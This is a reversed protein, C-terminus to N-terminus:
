RRPGPPRATCAAPPHATGGTSGCGAAQNLVVTSACGGAPTCGCVCCRAGGQQRPLGAPGVPAGWSGAGARQLARGAGLVGLAAAPQGGVEGGKHRGHIAVRNLDADARLVRGVVVAGAGTRAHTRPLTRAHTRPSCYERRSPLCAARAPSPPEAPARRLARQLGAEWGGARRGEARSRGEVSCADQPQHGPGGLGLDPHVGPHLRAHLHRTLRCAPARSRREARAERPMTSRQQGSALPVAMCTCEQEGAAWGAGVTCGEVVRQDGLEHHVSGLAAGGGNVLHPRRQLLRLHPPPM